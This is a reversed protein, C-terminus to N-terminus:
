TNETTQNFGKFYSYLRQRIFRKGMGTKLYKERKKAGEANLCIEVYICGLHRRSKTSFVKGANHKRLRKQLNDTFGTYLKGDKKSQLVHVYFM